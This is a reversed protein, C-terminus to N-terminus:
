QGSPLIRFTNRTPTAGAYAKVEEIAKSNYIFNVGSAGFEIGGRGDVEIAGEITTTGGLTVVAGSSNTPNRAYIVGYFTSTGLLTLTGDALVLFGPSAKSNAVGNSTLQLNGCGEVYAPLGALEEITKPCGKSAPSRFTGLAIAESKLAALQEESEVPSPVAPSKTTNPSIQEKAEDWEECTAVGECRMGIEGVEGTASRTLVIEKKGKNTVKFWNGSVADKPFNLAVLQRSVLTVVSVVHCQVVGVSRLWVKGNGNADYARQGAETASNFLPSEGADDRVYTTWQNTLPSGWADKTATAACPAPSINPYSTKMIESTPCYNSGTSTAETCVTPYTAEVGEEPATPWARSLQGVQANLAAEAENFASESAQERGSARQQNDTFLLLGLGLALIVVLLVIASVLAFGDESRPDRTARAHRM